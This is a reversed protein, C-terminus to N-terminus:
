FFKKPIIVSHLGVNEGLCEFLIPESLCYVGVSLQLLRNKNFFSFSYWGCFTVLEYCSSLSEGLSWVLSPFNFTGSATVFKMNTECWLHKGMRQFNMVTVFTCIDSEESMSLLATSFADSIWHFQQKVQAPPCSLNVNLIPLKFFNTKCNWYFCTKLLNYISQISQLFM